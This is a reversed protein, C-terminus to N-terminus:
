NVKGYMAVNWSANLSNLQSQLMALENKLDSIAAQAKDRDTGRWAHNNVLGDQVIDFRASLARLDQETARIGQMGIQLWGSHQAPSNKYATMGDMCPM